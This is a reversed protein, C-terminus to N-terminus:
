FYNKIDRQKEIDADRFVHSLNEHSKVPQIIM